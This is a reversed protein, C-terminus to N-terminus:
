FSYTLKTYVIDNEGIEKLMQSSGSMYILFGSTLMLNDSIDYIGQIRTFGGDNAKEGYLSALVSIELVDNQFTRSVRFVYQVFHELAGSQNALNNYNTIWKDAVEISLNTNIFGSYEIGALLDLRQYQNTNEILSTNQRVSSLKLDSFLAMETKFIFSNKVKSFAAGLMSIRQHAQQNSPTLYAGDDYIDAAYVSLDFGQFTGNIAIAYETNEIRVSPDDVSDIAMPLYYYSSGFVPITHSKHEHILYGTFSYNSIYYDFRTMFIPLRLDEIDTMGPERLELPNLVDTVRISDSKGWVVIQRGIKLDLNSTLNGRIFLQRLELQTENESLFDSIYDVENNLQYAFNHLIMGSGKFDWTDSFNVGFELLLKANLHSVGQHDTPQGVPRHYDFRYGGLLSIEGGMRYKSIIDDSTTDEFIEQGDVDKDDEFFADIEDPGPEDSELVDTDLIEQSKVPESLDNEFFDRLDEEVDNDALRIDNSYKSSKTDQHINQAMTNVPFSSCIALWFLFFLINFIHYFINKNFFKM